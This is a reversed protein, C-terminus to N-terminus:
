YIILKCLFKKRKFSRILITSQLQWDLTSWLQVRCDLAGSTTAMVSGDPSFTFDHLSLNKIVTRVSSTPFHLLKLENRVTSAAYNYVLYGPKSPLFEYKLHCYQTGIFIPELSDVKLHTNVCVGLQLDYFAFWINDYHACLYKDGPSFKLRFCFRRTRAAYPFSWEHRLQHSKLDMVRIQYSDSKMTAYAILDGSHSVKAGLCDVPFSDAQLTLIEFRNSHPHRIFVQSSKAAPTTIFYSVDRCIHMDILNFPNVISLGDCSEEVSYVFNPLHFVQTRTAPRQDIGDDSYISGAIHLSNGDPSFRMLRPRLSVDFIDVQRWNLGKRTPYQIVACDATRLTVFEAPLISSVALLIEFSPDCNAASKFLLCLREITGYHRDPSLIFELQRLVGVMRDLPGNGANGGASQQLWEADPLDNLKLNGIGKLILHALGFQEHSAARIFHDQVNYISPSTSAPWLLPKLLDPERLLSLIAEKARDVEHSAIYTQYLLDAPVQLELLLEVLLRGHNNLFAWSLTEAFVPFELSTGSTPPLRKRKQSRAGSTTVPHKPANADSYDVLSKLTTRCSPRDEPNIQFFEQVFRKQSQSLEKVIVRPTKNARAYDFVEFDGEFAKKGTFLEFTICGFSWM